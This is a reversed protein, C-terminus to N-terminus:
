RDGYVPHALIGGEVVDCELESVVRGVVFAHDRFHHVDHILADDSLENMGERGSSWRGGEGGEGVDLDYDVRGENRKGLRRVIRCQVVGLTRRLRRPLVLDGTVKSM